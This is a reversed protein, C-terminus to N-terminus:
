RVFWGWAHWFGLAGSSIMAVLMALVFSAAFLALAYLAVTRLRRNTRAPLQPHAALPPLVAHGSASALVNQHFRGYVRVLQRLFTAFYVCGVAALVALAAFSLGFVAGCWYPMAPILTYPNFGGILCVSVVASSLSFVALIAEWAVLLLFFIGAFLGAFGLGTVTVAKQIRSGAAAKGGEFQAALDAPSGLKASIEAESYGDAMKFAFHQEYESVVDTADAVDNKNLESMLQALFENKTM